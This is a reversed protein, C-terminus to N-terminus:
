TWELSLDKDLLPLGGKNVELRRTEGSSFSGRIRSLGSFGGGEVQVKIVHEGPPVDLTTEFRGKRRKIVLIKKTVRSELEEEVVLEDDVWVKITGTRLSHQFAIELRAPGRFLKGLLSGADPSATSAPPTAASEADSGPPAISGPAERSRLLALGLIAAAIVGVATLARAWGFRPVPAPAAPAATPGPRWSPTVSTQERARATDGGAHRPARGALLDELDQALAEATPYRAEPSKALARAVVSDLGAPLDPVLSSPAPADANLVRGLIAAVNEGDFPRQGTLMLYLMAGLSFVDSRADVPAGGVQEPSMYAPTGFFEGASTLQAAPIKAIGFDMIKPEGSALIMINPPKVDRHVIGQRHAHHLAEAIRAALRLAERWPLPGGQSLREALTQGQLFELAIYLTGSEPDRGVDHVVVIGPHSLGAAVRAEALFRKQFGERDAEAVSFALHVTKLAVTRGLAPDLARYVVGMMGRGIEDQIEYRGLTRPRDHEV